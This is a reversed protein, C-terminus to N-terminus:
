SSFREGVCAAEFFKTRKQMKLVFLLLCFGMFNNLANSTERNARDSMAAGTNAPSDQQSLALFSPLSHEWLHQTSALAAPLAQSFHAGLSFFYIRGGLRDRGAAEQPQGKQEGSSIFFARSSGAGQEIEV